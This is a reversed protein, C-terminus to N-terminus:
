STRGEIDKKEKEEDEIFKKPAKLVAYVSPLFTATMTLFNVASFILLGTGIVRCVWTFINSYKGIDNPHIAGWILCCIAITAVLIPLAFDIIMRLGIHVVAMQWPYYVRDGKNINYYIRFNRYMSEPVLYALFTVLLYTQISLLLWFATQKDHLDLSIGLTAFKTPFWGTAVIVISLMSVLLLNRRQRRTSESWEEKLMEIGDAIM